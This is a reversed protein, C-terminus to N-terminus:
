LFSGVVSFRPEAILEEANSTLGVIEASPLIKYKTTSPLGLFLFVVILACDCSTQYEVCSEAPLHDCACCTFNGILVLIVLATNQTDGSPFLINILPAKSLPFYTPRPSEM